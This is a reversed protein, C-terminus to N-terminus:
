PNRITVDFYALIFPWLTDPEYLPQGLMEEKAWAVQSGRGHQLADRLDGYLDFAAKETAEYCKFQVSPFLLADEYDGAGGRTKFVICPGDSPKYGENPESRGAVITVGALGAKAELYTMIATHPDIM